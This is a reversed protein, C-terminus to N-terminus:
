GKNKLYKEKLLMAALAIARGYSYLSILFIPHGKRIGQVAERLRTARRYIM